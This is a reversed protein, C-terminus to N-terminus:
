QGYDVPTEAVGLRENSWLALAFLLDSLRNIWQLLPAAQEEVRHLRWLEREARRAITRAVHFRAASPSGGPLVFTRLSQVPGSHADIEREIREVHAPTIRGGPPDKGQPTALENEALFLEHELRVVLPRLEDLAPPLESVILGLFSALEDFAGYAEIRPSDKAVRSAGVLATTGDDGTRTYLRTASEGGAAGPAFGAALEIRPRPM